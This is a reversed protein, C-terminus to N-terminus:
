KSVVRVHINKIDERKGLAFCAKALSEVDSCKGWFIWEDGQLADVHFTGKMEGRRRIVEVIIYLALIVVAVVGVLTFVCIIIDACINLIM